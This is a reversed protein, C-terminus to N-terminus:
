EFDDTFKKKLLASATLFETGSAPESRKRSSVEAVPTVCCRKKKKAGTKDEDPATVPTVFSSSPRTRRNATSTSLYAYLGSTISLPNFLLREDLSELCKRVEIELDAPVEREPLQQVPLLLENVAVSKVLLANKTPFFAFFGTPLVKEPTVIQSAQRKALLVLDKEYLYRTVAAFNHQNRELEEWDMKWCRTATVILPYGFLLSECMGEKKVLSVAELTYVPVKSTCQPKVMTNPRVVNQSTGGDSSLFFQGSSPLTEASLLCEHVDCRLTINSVSLRLHDSDTSFDRLWSKMISELQFANAEIHAKYIYALQIGPLTSEIIKVFENTPQASIFVLQLQPWEEKNQLAGQFYTEYQRVADQLNELLEDREFTEDVTLIGHVAKLGEMSFLFKTLNIKISQMPFICKSRQSLTYIGLVRFRSSNKLNNSLTITNQLVQCIINIYDITMPVTRDLFLYFAPQKNFAERWELKEM